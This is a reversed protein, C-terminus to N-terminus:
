ESIKNIYRIFDLSSHSIKGRYLINAVIVRVMIRLNDELHASYQRKIFTFSRMFASEVVSVMIRWNSRLHASYQRKIFTFSRMFASEVVRVM